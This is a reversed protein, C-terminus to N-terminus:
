DHQQEKIACRAAARLARRVAALGFEVGKVNRNLFAVLERLQADVHPEILVHEPHPQALWEGLSARDYFVPIGLREAEAIEAKTGSSNEWGPTILVADCRTMWELTGDLWFQHTLTGDFFRTNTHPICPFVGHQTAAELGTAEARRINQETEYPVTGRYAGAVYVVTMPKRKSM